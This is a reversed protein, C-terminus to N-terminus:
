QDVGAWTLFFGIADELRGPGCAAQFTNGQRWCRLWQAEDEYRDEHATLPKDRLETGDLNVSFRWGPNDLTGITIAASHEWDGDCHASFWDSLRALASGMAALARTSRRRASGCRALRACVQKGRAGLM